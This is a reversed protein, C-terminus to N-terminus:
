KPLLVVGNIIMKFPHISTADTFWRDSKTNRKYMVTKKGKECLTSVEFDIKSGKEKAIVRKVGVFFKKPNQITAYPLVIEIRGSFDSKLTFPLPDGMPSGPVGDPGVEYLVLLLKTDKYDYLESRELTNFSFIVSSIYAGKPLSTVLTVMEMEDNFLGDSNICPGSFVTRVPKAKGKPVNSIQVEPLIITDKELDQSFGIGATLLLVLLLLHKM